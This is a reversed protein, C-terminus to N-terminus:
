PHVTRRYKIEHPLDDTDAAEGRSLERAKAYAVRADDDRGLKALAMGLGYYAAPDDPSVVVASAYRKAAISFDGARFAASGSDLLAQARAKAAAAADVPTPKQAPSWGALALCAALALGTLVRRSM